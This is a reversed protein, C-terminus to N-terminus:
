PTIQFAVGPRAAATGYLQGNKGLTLRDQPEGGPNGLFVHVASFAWGGDAKRSLKFVGGGSRPGGCCATGYLTGSGSLTLGAMPAAMNKGKFSILVKENWKGGVGPSLLFVTGQDYTGGQFTTGYLNGASDFIVDGFPIRGDSGGAFSYLVTETWTGDGKTLKFVTGNGSSGGAVTTGYLNGASDFTLDAAPGNGDAGSFTYLVSQTWGGGSGRTLAFVVGCGVGCAPDMNGGAQATGYLNGAADFILDAVLQAGDAGGSFTYLVSETWSGDATLTLEFVTGRDSTGGRETTGYLDGTSDFTLGARPYLGDAGGTFSYLVTETWGGKSTPMLKFVTGANSGGGEYTTGYLHGASDFIVRATPSSGDGVKSGFKHLVKCKSRAWTRPMVAVMVLIVLFIHFWWRDQRMYNSQRSKGPRRLRMM